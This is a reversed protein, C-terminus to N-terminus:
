YILALSWVALWTHERDFVGCSANKSKAPEMIGVETLGSSYFFRALKGLPTVTMQIMLANDTEGSTEATIFMNKLQIAGNAIIRKRSSISCLCRCWRYCSCCQCITGELNSCRSWGRHEHSFKLRKPMTFKLTRSFLRICSESDHGTESSQTISRLINLIIALKPHSTTLRLWGDQSYFM